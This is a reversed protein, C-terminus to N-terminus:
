QDVVILLLRDTRLRAPHQLGSVFLAPQEVQEFGGSAM